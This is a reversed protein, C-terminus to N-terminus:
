SVSLQKLRQCVSAPLVPADDENFQDYIVLAKSSAFVKVIDTFCPRKTPDAHWCSAILARVEDSADDEEPMQPRMGLKAYQAPADPGRGVFKRAVDAYPQEM